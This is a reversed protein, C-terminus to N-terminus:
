LGGENHISVRPFVARIQEPSTLGESLLYRSYYAMSIFNDRRLHSTMDLFSTDKEILDRLVEDIMLMEFVGIRGREGEFRCRNCGKGRVLPQNWDLPLVKMERLLALMPDGPPVEVACHPCVRAVLRESMVCKLASAILYSKVGLKRLRMIGELAFDTHLSSFVLHGTTATELAINASDPDRIEGVLIVDPDQRLATRLIEAFDLGVPRNVQIQTAYPLYYEVPDEITVVNIKQTSRWIENLCAYLTTTKGSGTPGTTLFMGTANRLVERMAECMVKSHVLDVLALSQQDRDLIRLVAKEGGQCPMMSVRVEIRPRGGIRIPFRGDQPMRHNTIDMDSLVKIRSIVRPFLANAVESQLTRMHGDVRVRVRSVPEGPEFHIDSAHAKIAAILVADLFEITQHDGSERPKDSLELQTVGAELPASTPASEKLFEDAFREFESESIARFEVTHRRLEDMLFSRVKRDHPNVMGVKIHDEEQCLVLARASRSIEPRLLRHAKIVPHDELREFPVVAERRKLDESHEAIGACFDLAIRPDSNLLENLTKAKLVLVSAPTVAVVSAMSAAGSLITGEGFYSPPYLRGIEREFGIEDHVVTVKFDGELIIFLETGPAGQEIVREGPWCTRREARSALHELQEPRLHCFLPVTALLNTTDDSM